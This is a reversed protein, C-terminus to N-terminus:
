MFHFYARAAPILEYFSGGADSSAPPITAECVLTFSAKLLNLSKGLDERPFEVGGRVLCETAKSKRWQLCSATRRALSITVLGTVRAVPVSQWNNNAQWPMWWGM